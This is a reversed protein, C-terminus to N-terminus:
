AKWEKGEFIFSDNVINVPYLNFNGSPNMYVIAFGNKWQSPKGQLYDPQKDSLCGLSWAQIQKGEAVLEKAHTQFTHVHGYVINGSYVDLHKRAHYQNYFWGHICNLKGIKLPRDEPTLMTIGRSKVDFRRYYDLTKRFPPEMREAKKHARWDHNGLIWYYKGTISQWFDLEKNVLDVDAEWDGESQATISEKDFVSFYTLDLTDGLDVVFDPKFSEAFRKVLTYSPHFPEDARHHRDTIIIGAQM